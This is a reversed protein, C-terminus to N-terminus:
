LVVTNKKGPVNEQVVVVSFNLLEPELKACLNDTDQRSVM